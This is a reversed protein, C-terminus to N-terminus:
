LLAIEQVILIAGIIITLLQQHAILTGAHVLVKWHIVLTMQCVNADKSVRISNVNLVSRKLSDWKMILFLRYLIPM